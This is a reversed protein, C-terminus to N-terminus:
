IGPQGMLSLHAEGACLRGVADARCRRCHYMQPMHRSALTRIHMMRTSDPETLSSFPTDPLPIMPICNMLDAGLRAAEAAVAEVHSENVGPVVVTNVKVVLGRAKFRAVAERQRELLLAAADIGSYVRGHLVARGCIRQGIAPDVANITVTAHTVGCAALADVHEAANLGNTSICLLLHPYAGHLARVTELTREPECFPDGPGAIGAVAIDSRAAFLARLHTHVDCPELIGRTVAPRSENACDYLRNCFNCRINCHPAVPLHV